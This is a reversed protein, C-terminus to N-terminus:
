LMQGASVSDGGVSVRGRHTGCCCPRTAVHLRAIIGPWCCGGRKRQLKCCTCLRTNKPQKSNCPWCGPMAVPPPMIGPCGPMPPPTPPAPAGM